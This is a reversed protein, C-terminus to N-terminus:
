KANPSCRPLQANTSIRTMPKRIQSAILHSPREVRTIRCYREIRAVRERFLGQGRRAMILAQRDTDPLVTDRRIEDLLHEEWARMEQADVTARSKEDTATELAGIRLVEFETGILLGLAHAMGM